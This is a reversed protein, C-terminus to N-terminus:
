TKQFLSSEAAPINERELLGTCVRATVSRDSQLDLARCQTKSNIQATPVLEDVGLGCLNDGHISL